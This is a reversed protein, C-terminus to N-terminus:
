PHLPNRAGRRGSAFSSTVPKSLLHEPSSTGAAVENHAHGCAPYMSALESGALYILRPSLGGRRAIWDRIEQPYTTMLLDTGDPSVVHRGAEDPRWAAHFGLRARSTVCLHDRPIVGLVMTCASLCSGDIVVNQGSKRLTELRDLYPGIEGGPDNAIRVTASSPLASAAVLVAGLVAASIRMPTGKAAGGSWGMKISRGLCAIARRPSLKAGASRRCASLHPQDLGESEAATVDDCRVSMAGARRQEIGDHQSSPWFSKLSIQWVM